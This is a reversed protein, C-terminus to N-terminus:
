PHPFMTRQEVIERMNYWYSRVQGILYLSGTVLVLDAPGAMDLAQTLAELPAGGARVARAGVQRAMDALDDPSIAPKGTVKPATTIIVDALAALQELVLLANKTELMGLVLILQQYRFVEPLATVLASIKEENHAGDLVVMPSHHMVELRGAFRVQKLGKRVAEESLNIGSDDAYLELAALALTANAFQHAGLLGIELDSLSMNLGRYSFRGAHQSVSIPQYSVDRGLRVLRANQRAAEAEVVKLADAAMEGAVAPVGPKIIGSKHFAIDALTEGLVRTHDYHVTSMISVRPTIINTCDYRGGMGVEVLAIECHQDAFHTM